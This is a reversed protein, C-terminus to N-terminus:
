LIICGSMVRSLSILIAVVFLFIGTKKYFYSFLLATSFFNVAHNSPFSFSKSCGVLLHVNPLVNCPRVRGFLPKLLQSSTFDSLGVALVGLVVVWRGKKGGWIILALLLLFVPFRWHSFNTIFPMVVDLVPNQWDSNIWYFIAKDWSYILQRLNDFM